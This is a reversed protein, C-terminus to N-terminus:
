AAVRRLVVRVDATVESSVMRLIGRSMGLEALDLPATAHLEFRDTGVRRVSASVAFPHRRGRVDLEGRLQVAAGEAVVETADFSVEPHNGVDFFDKGRLHHDRLRIGSSLGATAITMRGRGESGNWELTGGVEGLHGSVPVLGWLSAAKFNARSQAPDVQWAAAAPRACEAPPTITSPNTM